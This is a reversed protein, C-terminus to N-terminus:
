GGDFCVCKLEPQATSSLTIFHMSSREDKDKEVSVEELGM